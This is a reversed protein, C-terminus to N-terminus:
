SGPAYAIPSSASAFFALSRVSTTHECPECRSSRGSGTAAPRSRAPQAIRGSSTASKSVGATAHAPPRARRSRTWPQSPTAALKAVSPVAAARAAAHPRVAGSPM